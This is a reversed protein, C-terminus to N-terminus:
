PRGTGPNRSLHFAVKAPGLVVTSVRTGGSNTGTPRILDLESPRGPGRDLILLGRDEEVDIKGV